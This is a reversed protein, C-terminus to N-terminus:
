QYDKYPHGPIDEKTLVERNHVQLNLQALLPPIEAPMVVVYDPVQDQAKPKMAYRPSFSILMSMIGRRNAGAVDRKINNGIMVIRHADEHTLNMNEMAVEFMEKDPKEFGLAESIVMTEFVHEIGHQKFINMFSDVMGDAVLAIRYGENYLALLAEKAGPILECDIVVGEDNRIETSEDVLTDGCDTFIILKKEM